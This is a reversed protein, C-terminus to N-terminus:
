RARAPERSRTTGSGARLEAATVRVEGNRGGVPAEHFAYSARRASSIREYRMRMQQRLLGLLQENSVLGSGVLADGSFRKRAVLEEIHERSVLGSDVLMDGLRESVPPQDTTAGDIKGDRVSFTLNEGNAQVHLTGSKRMQRLFQFVSAIPLSETTGQMICKGRPKVVGASTPVVAAPEAM